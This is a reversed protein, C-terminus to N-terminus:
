VNCFGPRVQEIREVLRGVGHVEIQAHLPLDGAIQYYVGIEDPAVENVSRDLTDIVVPEVARLSRDDRAASGGLVTVRSGSARATRDCKVVAVAKSTVLRQQHSHLLSERPM